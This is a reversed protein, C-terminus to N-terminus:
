PPVLSGVGVDRTFAGGSRGLPLEARPTGATFPRDDVEKTKDGFYDGIQADSSNALPQHASRAVDDRDPLILM